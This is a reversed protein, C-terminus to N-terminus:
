FKVGIEAQLWEGNNFGLGNYKAASRAQEFKLYNVGIYAADSLNYSVGVEYGSMNSSNGFGFENDNLGQHVAGAGVRRYNAHASLDGAKKNEGLQVGLLWAIKDGSSPEQLGQMIENRDKGAFNYAFDWLFKTKVGAVEGSIDGPILLVQLDKELLGNGNTGNSALYGPAVTLKADHGLEFGAVLQSQWIFSDRNNNSTNLNEINDRQIYQGSRFSLDVGSIGFVKDLDIVESFGTPNIDNDWVLDTTYLPNKQKGAILTVGELPHWGLFARNIAIGLNDFGSGSGGMLSNDNRYSEATSPGSTRLGFGAFFDEDIKYDANIRLRIDYFSNQVTKDNGIGSAEGFGKSPTYGFGGPNTGSTYNYRVRIDGSLTLSKVSDDLKLKGSSHASEKAAEARIQEAEKSKLVGKKVLADILASDNAVASSAFSGVIGLAVLQVTYKNLM